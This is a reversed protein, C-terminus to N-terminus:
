KIFRQFEEIFLETHSLFPMHAARNFFVYDFHPYLKQMAEMIKAPAIPDLRAFMFCTPLNLDHLASRLDWQELTNLGQELGESSPRQGLPLIIKNKNVQLRIFDKLTKELDLSLNNYFHNFVEKPVAPWSEDAIFRPSATISLLSSIRSPEEIALRQAYLGGLSWGVLAFSAPLQTLLKNKFKSWNLWPTSGFGPLDVLILQYREGLPEILPLWIHHDFGWGHFFVVPVGRGHKIININM